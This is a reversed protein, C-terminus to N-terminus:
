YEGAHELLEVEEVAEGFGEEDEWDPVHEKFAIVLNGKDNNEFGVYGDKSEKGLQLLEIIQDIKYMKM